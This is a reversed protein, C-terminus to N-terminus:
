VNLREFLHLELRNIAVFRDIIISIAISVFNKSPVDIHNYVAIQVPSRQKRALQGESRTAKLVKNRSTLRDWSTDGSSCHRIRIPTASSPGVTSNRSRISGGMSRTEDQHSVLHPGNDSSIPQSCSVAATAPTPPLVVRLASSYPGLGGSPQNMGARKKKAKQESLRDLPLDSLDLQYLNKALVRTLIDMTKQLAYFICNIEAKKENQFIFLYVFTGGVRSDVRGVCDSRILDSRIPGM